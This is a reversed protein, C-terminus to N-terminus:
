SGTEEEPFPAASIHLMILTLIIALDTAALLALVLLSQETWLYGLEFGQLVTLLSVGSRLPSESLGINLLGVGILFYTSFAIGLPPDFFVGALQPLLAVISCFLFLLLSFRFLLALPKNEEGRFSIKGRSLTVALLAVAIMGIISKALAIPPLSIQLVVLGFGLSQVALAPLVRIWSRFLALLCAGAILLIYGLVVVWSTM